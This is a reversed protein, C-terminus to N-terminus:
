SAGGAGYAKIVAPHRIEGAHTVVSGAVVEDEFNLVIQGEKVLDTFVNLVNKAYMESAHVPLLAPLNLTGVLTVGEKTVVKGAESLECNGGQEVALDVIVAGERMDRVIDAPILKPAPKGPVLATTIVVDAEVMHERVIAQQKKLFEPTVEKAYGGADEM